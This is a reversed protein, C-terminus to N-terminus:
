LGGLLEDKKRAPYNKYQIYNSYSKQAESDKLYKVVNPREFVLLNDGNQWMLKDSNLFKGPGYKGSLSKLIEVYAIQKKNFEIRISYLADNKFLLYGSNIFDTKGLKIFFDDREDPIDDIRQRLGDAFVLLRENQINSRIEEANM